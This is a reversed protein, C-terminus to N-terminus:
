ATVEAAASLADLWSGRGVLTRLGPARISWAGWRAWLHLRWVVATRAHELVLRHRGAEVIVWREGRVTVVSM